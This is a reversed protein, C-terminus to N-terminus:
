ANPKMISRSNLDCSCEYQSESSLFTLRMVNAVVGPCPKVQITASVKTKLPKTVFSQRIADISPTQGFLLKIFKFSHNNKDHKIKVGM